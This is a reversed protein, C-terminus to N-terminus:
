ITAAEVLRRLMPLAKHDPMAQEVRLFEELIDKYPHLNADHCCLMCHGDDARSCGCVEYKNCVVHSDNECMCMM